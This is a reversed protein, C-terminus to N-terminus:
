AVLEKGEQAIQEAEERSLHSAVTHWEGPGTHMDVRYMSPDLTDAVVYTPYKNEDIM